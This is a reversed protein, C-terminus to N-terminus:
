CHTGTLCLVFCDEKILDLYVVGETSRVNGVDGDM